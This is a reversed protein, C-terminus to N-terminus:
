RTDGEKIRHQKELCTVRENLSQVTAILDAILEEYRIGKENGVYINDTEDQKSGTRYAGDVYVGWDDTMVDKLEQAILGHHYRGSTGDRYKFRSPKLSYIFAAVDEKNLLSIERKANRDSTTISSSDATLSGIHATSATLANTLITSFFGNTAGVDSEGTEMNYELLGGGPITLGHWMLTSTKGALGTQIGYAGMGTGLEGYPSTANLSIFSEDSSDAKIKMKGDYIELSGDTNIKVKDNATVAGNLNIKEADITANGAELNIQSIVDGKSVKASVSEATIQIAAALEVEQGQARKVEAAISESTQMIRSTLKQEIGKARSVEATISEANQTIQSQLGKEVDAITSKTEEVTRELVNTKGKLQIISRNVSNVKESYEKVGDASYVDRLAQIGKLTRKLIYSEVIEYKTTLRVADGVEFCPNGKVDAEFPRYSIETIIDFLNNAIHELDAASKGYVLFNNEVIYCNTGTGVPSGIDNKDQRIQLKDIKHTVFDEYKCNIYLGNGIKTTRPDRPYLDDAPYLDNAPYLGDIYKPLLIYRFKGDRGIHGFCGNIECIATVVDKGSIESPEITKEVIMDDNVLNIEEQDLGFHSIFSTRFQKLTVTSTKDPLIANYWDAVDAKIIDYMADYAVIDRYRRDATPKDSYVKYRGFQFSVDTNGDLTETVTLWMDKLPIFVNSIKFKISSAECCGFRLESESCLSESLEFQEQHLETNTIRVLGDDTKIVLQKDISDKTFLDSYKYDVM